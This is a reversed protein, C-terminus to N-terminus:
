LTFEGGFAISTKSEQSFKIVVSPARILFSGKRFLRTFALDQECKEVYHVVEVTGEQM